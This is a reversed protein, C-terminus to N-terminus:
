HTHIRKRAYSLLFFGFIALAAPGPEPVAAFAESSPVIGFEGFSWADWSNNALFRGPSGFSEASAGSPSEAWVAPFTASAGPTVPTFVDPAFTGGATGGVVFYGWYDFNDVFNGSTAVHTVVGDFYSAQILFFGSEVTGGTQISLNTDAATIATLMQSGTAIGDWRFGWVFSQKAEGDQFDIMLGAQNSGTGTWFQIDDFTAVVQAHLHASSLALAIVALLRTGTRTKM